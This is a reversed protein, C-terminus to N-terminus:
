CRAFLQTVILTNDPNSVIGIGLHTFHSELINRRHGPSRMLALHAQEVSPYGTMYTNEPAPLPVGTPGGALNEGCIAYRIGAREVRQAPNVGDPNVHAMFRRRLMDECHSYAVAALQEHWLLQARGEGALARAENVLNWMSLAADNLTADALAKRPAPAFDITALRIPAREETVDSYRILIRETEEPLVIILCEKDAAAVDADSIIIRDRLVKVLSLSDNM